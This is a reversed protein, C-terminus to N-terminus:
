RLKRQLRVSFPPSECTYITTSRRLCCPCFRYYCDGDSEFTLTTSDELVLMKAPSHAGIIIRGALFENLFAESAPHTEDRELPVNFVGSSM